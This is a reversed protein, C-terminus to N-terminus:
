MARRALYDGGNLRIPALRQNHSVEITDRERPNDSM